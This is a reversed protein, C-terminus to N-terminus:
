ALPLLAQNGIFGGWALALRRLHVPSFPTVLTERCAEYPFWLAAKSEHSLHVTGQPNKCVITACAYHICNGDPYPLIAGMDPDTHLDVIGMLEVTLGTEELIERHAAQALSEGPEMAGGVMGWLGNDSRLHILTDAGSSGPRFIACCVSPKLLLPTNM